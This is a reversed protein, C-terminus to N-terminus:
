ANGDSASVQQRRHARGACVVVIGNVKFKLFDRFCGCRGVDDLAKARIEQVAAVLFVGLISERIKILSGNSAM